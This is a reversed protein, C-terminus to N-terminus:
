AIGADDQDLAELFVDLSPLANFFHEFAFRAQAALMSRGGFGSVGLRQASQLLPTLTPRYVMDYVVDCAGLRTLEIPTESEAGGGKMGVTTANIILDVSLGDTKECMQIAGDFGNALELARDRSRGNVYVEAAGADTMASAAARAAGGSGLILIRKGHPEFGVVTRLAELLGRADTNYGILSGESFVITNVAGIRRVEPDEVQLMSRAVVKLPATLNCGRFGLTVLSRLTDALGTTGTQFALYRGQLGSHALGTEHLLPSLSHAIPDGLVCALPIAPKTHEGSM